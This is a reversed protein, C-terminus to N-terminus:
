RQNRGYEEPHQEEIAAKMDDETTEGGIFKWGSTGLRFIWIAPDKRVRFKFELPSSWSRRVIEYSSMQIERATAAVVAQPNYPGSRNRIHEPFLSENHKKMAAFDAMSELIRLDNAKVAALFKGTVYYPWYLYGAVAAVVLLKFFRRLM